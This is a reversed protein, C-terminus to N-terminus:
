AKGPPIKTTFRPTSIYETYAAESVAEVNTVTFGNRNVSGDSTLRLTFSDGRVYVAQGALATGTFKQQVGDEGAVYLYDWNQEFATDESFTIKLAYASQTHAYTWTVDSNNAYPHESEPYGEAQAAGILVAALVMLVALLMTLLRFSPNPKKM